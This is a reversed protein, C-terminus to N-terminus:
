VIREPLNYGKEKLYDKIKDYKEPIIFGRIMVYRNKIVNQIFNSRKEINEIFKNNKYYIPIGSSDYDDVAYAERTHNEILFEHRSIDLDELDEKLERELIELRANVDKLEKNRILVPSYIELYPKRKKILTAIQRVRPLDSDFVQNLFWRDDQEIFEKITDSSKLDELRVYDFKNQDKLLEGCKELMLEFVMKTKHFYVQKYMQDRAFIFQEIAEYGGELIVFQNDVIASQDIIRGLDFKGYSVGAYHSDRLLYDMRDVDLQGNIIKSLYNKKSYGDILESVEKPDVGVKEIIDAFHNEILNKSYKEHSEGLIKELSHSFPTHGVDHLLAAMRITKKDRAELNIEHSKEINKELSEMVKGAIHMAGLMHGFRSHEAGHYVYNGLSLQKINRTRQFVPDDIIALEEDSVDIFNHIPDWFRKLM